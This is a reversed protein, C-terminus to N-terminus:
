NLISDIEVRPQSSNCARPKLRIINKQRPSQELVELLNPDATAVLVQIKESLESIVVGLRRSVTADMCQSPDDLILFSLDHTDSFTIAMGAVVAIALSNLDTLNLVATAPFIGHPGDVQIVFGGAPDVNVEPFDGRQTLSRYISAIPEMARNLNDQARRRAMSKMEVEAHKFMQESKALSQQAKVMAAWEPANRIDGLDEVRRGLELVRGVQDILDAVVEIEDVRQQQQQVAASVTGIETELTRIEADAVAGPDEDPRLQRGLVSEIGTKAELVLPTARALERQLNALTITAQDLERLSKRMADLERNLKQDKDTSVNVLHRELEDSISGSVVSGCVPCIDVEPLSKFYELAERIVALQQNLQARAHLHRSEAEKVEATRKAIQEETGTQRVASDYAVQASAQALRTAGYRARASEIQAKRSAFESHKQAPGCRRLKRLVPSLRASYDDMPESDPMALVSIGLDRCLLEVLMRAKGIQDPASQQWPEVLGNSRAVAEAEQLQRRAESMRANVADNIAQVRQDAQDCNLQKFPKTFINVLEQAWGVGLLRQFAKERAAPPGVLFERVTEQHVFVLSNFDGYSCAVHEGSNASLHGGKKLGEAASHVTFDRDGKTLTLTVSPKTSSFANKVEWSRREDIGHEKQLTAERPYFAYEV